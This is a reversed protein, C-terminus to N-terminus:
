NQIICQLIYKLYDVNYNEIDTQKNKQRNTRDLCSMGQYKKAKAVKQVLNARDILYKHILTDTIDIDLRISELNGLKLSEAKTEVSNKGKSKDKKLSM